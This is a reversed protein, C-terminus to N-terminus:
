ARGYVHAMVMHNFQGVCTQVTLHRRTAEPGDRDITMFPSREVALRRFMRSSRQGVEGQARMSEVPEPLACDPAIRITM